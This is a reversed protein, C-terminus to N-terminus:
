GLLPRVIGTVTDLVKPVTCKSLVSAALTPVTNVLFDGIGLPPPFLNRDIKTEPVVNKTECVPYLDYGPLTTCIQGDGCDSDSSCFCNDLLACRTTLPDIDIKSGTKLIRRGFNNIFIQNPDFKQMADVFGFM